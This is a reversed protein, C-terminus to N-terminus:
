CIDRSVRIWHSTVKNKNL